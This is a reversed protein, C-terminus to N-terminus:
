ATDVMAGVCHSNIFINILVPDFHTGRGELLVDIAEKQTMAPRYVKDTTISEYVDAITLIRAMFPIDEGAKGGPYGSGDYREHHAYVADAVMPNLFDLVKLFNFGNESHEKVLEYEYLTLKGPKNLIEQPIMLKGIDHLLAAISINQITPVPLGLSRALEVAFEEVGRSHNAIEQDHQSIFRLLYDVIDTRTFKCYM